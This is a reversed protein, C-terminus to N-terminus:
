ASGIQTFQWGEPDAIDKAAEGAAFEALKPDGRVALSMGEADCLIIVVTVGMAALAINEDAIRKSQANMEVNTM